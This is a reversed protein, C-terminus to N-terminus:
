NCPYKESFARFMTVLGDIDKDKENAARAVFTELGAVTDVNSPLCIRHKELADAMLIGMTLGACLAYRPNEISPNSLGLECVVKLQETNMFATSPSCAAMLIIASLVLKYLKRNM